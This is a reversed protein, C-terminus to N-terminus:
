RTRPATEARVRKEPAMIDVLESLVLRTNPDEIQNFDIQQALAELRAEKAQVADSKIQMREPAAYGTLTMATLFIGMTLLTIKTKM